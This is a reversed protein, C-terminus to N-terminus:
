YNLSEPSINYKLSAQDKKDKLANLWGKGNLQENIRTRLECIHDNRFSKFTPVHTNPIMYISDIIAGNMWHTKNELIWLDEIEKTWYSTKGIVFGSVLRSRSRRRETEHATLIPHVVSRNRIPEENGEDMRTHIRRTLSTTAELFLIIKACKRKKTLREFFLSFVFARAM